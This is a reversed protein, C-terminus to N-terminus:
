LKRSNGIMKTLHLQRLETNSFKRAKWSQLLFRSQLKSIFDSVILFTMEKQRILGVRYRASCNKEFFSGFTFTSASRKAMLTLRLLVHMTESATFFFHLTQEGDRIRRHSTETGKCSEKSNSHNSLDSSICMFLFRMLRFISNALASLLLSSGVRPTGM